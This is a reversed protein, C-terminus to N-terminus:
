LSSAVSFKLYRLDIVALSLEFGVIRELTTCVIAARELRLSLFMERAELTLSIHVGMKDAKLM